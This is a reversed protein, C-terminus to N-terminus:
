SELYSELKDLNIDSPQAIRVVWCYVTEDSVGLARSLKIHSGARKVAELVLAHIEDCLRSFDPSFRLLSRETMKTGKAWRAINTPTTQLRRALQAKGGEKKICELINARIKERVANRKAVLSM